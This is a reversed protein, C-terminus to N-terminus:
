QAPGEPGPCAAREYTRGARGEAFARRAEELLANGCPTPYRGTVCGLCLSDEEVGICHGLDQVALYRLSDVGLAKAM